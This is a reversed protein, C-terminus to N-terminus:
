SRKVMIYKEALAIDIVIITLHDYYDENDGIIQKGLSQQLFNDLTCVSEKIERLLSALIRKTNMM